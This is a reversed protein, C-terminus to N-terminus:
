EPQNRKFRLMHQNVVHYGQFIHRWAKGASQQQNSYAKLVGVLEGWKKMVDAFEIVKPQKVPRISKDAKMKASKALVEIKYPDDEALDKVLKAAKTHHGDDFAKEVDLKLEALKEANVKMGEIEKLIDERTEPTITDEPIANALEVAKDFEGAKVAEVIPAVDFEPKSNEVAEEDKVEEPSEVTDEKPKETTAEETEVEEAVEEAVENVEQKAAQKEAAKRERTAKAKNAKAAKQAPTLPKRPKKAKTSM